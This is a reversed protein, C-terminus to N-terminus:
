ITFDPIDSDSERSLNKERARDCLQEITTNDFREM